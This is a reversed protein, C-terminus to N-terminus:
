EGFYHGFYFLSHFCDFVVAQVFEVVASRQLEVLGSCSLGNSNLHLFNKVM